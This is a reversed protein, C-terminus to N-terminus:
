GQVGQGARRGGQAKGSIRQCIERCRATSSSSSSGRNWEGAARRGECRGALNYRRTHESAIGGAIGSRLAFCLSSLEFIRLADLM